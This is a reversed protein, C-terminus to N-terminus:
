DGMRVVENVPMKNTRKVEVIVIVIVRKITYMAHIEAQKEGRRKESNSEGRTKINREREPQSKM